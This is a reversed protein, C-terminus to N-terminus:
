IMCLYGILIGMVIGLLLGGQFGEVWLSFREEDQPTIKHKHRNLKM